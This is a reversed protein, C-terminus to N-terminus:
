FDSQKLTQLEVDRILNKFLSIYYIIVNGGQFKFYNKERRSDQLLM